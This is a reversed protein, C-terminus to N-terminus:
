DVAPGGCPASEKLGVQTMAAGFRCLPLASM